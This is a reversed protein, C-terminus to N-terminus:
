RLIEFNSVDKDDKFFTYKAMNDFEDGQTGFENPLSDKIEEETTLRRRGKKKAIEVPIPLFPADLRLDIYQKVQIFQNM